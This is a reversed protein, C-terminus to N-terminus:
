PAQNGRRMMRWLTTRSIGLRRAARAQNMNEEALVQTVADYIIGSLPQKLDIKTGDAPPATRRESALIRRINKATIWLSDTTLMAENLVRQLQSVNQPWSYELLISMAEPELGTIQTGNVRNQQHIYLISFNAIEETCDRLPAIPIEVCGIRSRVEELRRTDQGPQLEYTFLLRSRLVRSMSQLGDLLQTFLSDDLLQIGKFHITGHLAYLPSRQNNLLFDLEKKTMLGCSVIYLPNNAQHSNLYMQNALFEKETGPEGSILVHASSKAVIDCRHWADKRFDRILRLQEPEQGPLDDSNYVEISRSGPLYTLGPRTKQINFFYYTAGLMRSKSGSIVVLGDPLKKHAVASGGARMTPILGRCISLLSRKEEMRTSFAVEGREDMALIQVNRSRVYGQFFSSEMKLRSYYTCVSVVHDLADRISEPGSTLLMSQLGLKEAHSVAVTDGIILSYGAEKAREVKAQADMWSDISIIDYDYHLIQSLVRASRAINPYSVIAVKGQYNEVLKVINLLDFYSIPISFVPRDTVKEIELTTGGRSLIADFDESEYQRAIESGEELSGIEVTLDIDDRENAERILASKLTEYPAIALIRTKHHMPVEESHKM